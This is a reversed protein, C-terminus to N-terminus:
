AVDALAFANARANAAALWRMQAQTSDLRQFQALEIDCAAFNLTEAYAAMHKRAIRVGTTAGYFSHMLQLHEAVTQWKQARTVSEGQLEAFLWPQGIAARGLMVGDAGTLALAREASAPGDIDGNVLLPIALAARTAAVAPYDVPGVFRCARSRAHMVVMQAGAAQATLAAAQGIGDGPVLGTRTKITVPVCVAQAVSEVLRGLLGLDVLLASGAMKKCVKKAPCGFNIDIVEVGEDVHRRAAEALVLPDTGALQVANPRVGPVPVRRQRSKGTEWLEPKSSVMESVMYAAGFRWALTRLPVDTLGAMPALAYRSQLTHQGLSIPLEPRLNLSQFLRADYESFRSIGM